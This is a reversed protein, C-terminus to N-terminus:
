PQEPFKPTSSIHHACSTLIDTSFVLEIIKPVASLLGFDLELLRYWKDWLATSM